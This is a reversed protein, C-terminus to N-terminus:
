RKTVTGALTVTQPSGAANDRVYLTASLTGVHDGFFVVVITCSKGPALSSGCLSVSTFANLDTGVGPTVSVKSISLTGTGINKVTVNRSLLSYQRVLGFDISGPTVSVSVQQSTVTLTVSTAHTMSGEVGTVLLTYVGPAATGASVTLASSGGATVSTPNLSASAGSPIGSVTLSVTQASGSTVATSISSSGSAGQLISVSSPNAAISFDSPPQTVTLTVSTAHTTSGETGTVTITYNGPAATGANVTLTSSGGATVTGPNLSVTAGSPAGSINLAVTGPSGIVATSIASTGSTGQALSLSGPSASITFDTGTITLAISTSHTNAGETGTVTITYNGPTATGADVTLTSGTGALVKTSSLSVTAGSPAGSVSLNIIGATDVVFTSITSSGSTGPALSLSSPSASITFDTATIIVGVSTSHSSSGATGTVTITYNGPTATGANVTLTSSGGSIVSSPSISITAGPIAGSLNLAVTEPTGLATTSITSTGTEGQTVSLTTPSASITFDNATITVAVLTSHSISGVTGTVTITYKGPLATGADVMLTSSNGATVSPPNLSVTAGSPVGSFSLAVPGVSGATVATSITSTSATNQLISLSSPSASISFNNSSCSPTAPAICNAAANSFEQQVVYTEGDCAAFTTQQAACLDGIEGNTNDFWALPPGIVTALGVEADTITDTLEKSAIATYNGFTTSANGCQTDCGSGAQMDPHVGYYIERLSGSAAITGHYSCFGGAACSSSGGQTITIGSPFYIAYYTIPNGATDIEPAPLHTAAIQSEIEAQIQSDAVTSSSISPTITYLNQFAGRGIHQDTKTGSPDVTNYESDLWSTFTSESLIQDYFSAMSPTATSSVHSEYSGSGWLVIVVKMASVVRGGYYTLHAGAPASPPPPLVGAAEKGVAQKSQFKYVRVHNSPAAKAETATQAYAQNAPLGLMFAAMACLIAVHARFSTRFDIPQLM